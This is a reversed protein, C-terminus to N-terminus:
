SFDNENQQKMQSYYIREYQSKKESLFEEDLASGELARWVSIKTEANM